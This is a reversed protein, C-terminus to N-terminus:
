NPKIFRLTMRDSEGIAAYKERDTDGLRYTPPLTWVGEPHDKTDRPNANIESAAVFVFGLGELFEILYTQPVYGQDASARPDWDDRGRHQVVGLIGNPKLVDYIARYIEEIGSFRIWNHTNRFTVVMDASGSPGLDIVKGTQMVRREVRDYVTENADLKRMLEVHLGRLYDNPHDEGFSSVVLKGQDRLMPALIETYWGRGPLIEVVTMEPRMGFFMLTEKPHRYADRARNTQERHTGALVEDILAATRVEGARAARVWQLSAYEQQPTGSTGIILIGSFVWRWLSRPSV